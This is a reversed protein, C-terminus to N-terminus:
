VTLAQVRGVLLLGWEITTNKAIRVHELGSGLRHSGVNSLYNYLKQFLDAEESTLVSTTILLDKWPQFDRLRGSPEKTGTLAASQKAADEVIEEFITRVLDMCGKFDLPKGAAFLKRDLEDLAEVIERRFGLTEMRSVLAERDTNIEPNVGQLLQDKLRDYRIRAITDGVRKLIASVYTANIELHLRGM